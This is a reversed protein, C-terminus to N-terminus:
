PEFLRVEVETGKEVTQQGQPVVVVGDARTMTTIVGSKGLLPMAWAIGDRHELSVRIHDERAGASPVRRGMRARVVQGLARPPTRGALGRLVDKVFVDFIVMGSVPHGPLGIIPTGGVVALITPKGPKISVGHVIVGPEGLAGIARAVADRAGVSSGGSILILDSTRRVEGLTRLLVEYDDKLIGYSTPLGGEQTVLASLTYTNVDRVQGLAPRHDPPVIEDGTSLVSVRPQLFVEVTAVGIAALLGVDQPRLRGGQRLIAEGAKVDEARRIVNDGAEAPQKVAITGDDVVDVHELMVVADAGQPLMGGTPIRLTEGPQVPRPPTAGMPVEGVLALRLPHGASASSTQAARVAYGDVTSRDFEPLDEPAVVDRALIRRYAEGLPVRETGRPYPTYHRAFRAQAEKPTVLESFGPM